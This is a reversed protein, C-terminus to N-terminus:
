RRGQLLTDSEMERPAIDDTEVNLGFTKPHADM